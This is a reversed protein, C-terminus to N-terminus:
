CVQTLSKRLLLFLTLFLLAAFYLIALAVHVIEFRDDDRNEMKRLLGFVNLLVFAHFVCIQFFLAIQAFVFCFLVFFLFCSVFCFLLLV